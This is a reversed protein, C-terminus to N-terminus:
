ITVLSLLQTKETQYRTANQQRVAESKSKFITNVTATKYESVLNVIDKDTLIGKGLLPETFVTVYNPGLQYATSWVLDQVAPGFKTLDLGLRQLNTIM